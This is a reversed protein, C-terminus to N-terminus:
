RPAAYHRLLNARGQAVTQRANPHRAYVYQLYNVAQESTVTSIQTPDNRCSMVTTVRDIHIFDFRESLQMWMELDSVFGAAEDFWGVRDWAARSFVVSPGGIINAIQLTTKGAPEGVMLAYGSIAYSGDAQPEAYERLEIAHAVQAGSRELAPVVRALHDPCYVDDDALCAIYAGSSAEIGDNLATAVGGRVTREVIKARRFGATLASDIPPGADNVIVLELNDYTQAAISAIATSLSARRNLTPVVVSVLPGDHVSQPGANALLRAFTALPDGDPRRAVPARGGLANAVAMFISRHNWPEYVSIGDLWDAAGSTAAVALPVGWRALARASGPDGVSADVIVAAHALADAADGVGVFRTGSRMPAPAGGACIICARQEFEELAFAIIGCAEAPYDPAWVVITRENSRADCPDPVAPHEPAIEVGHLFRRALLACLAEREVSSRTVVIDATLAFEMATRLYRPDYAEVDSQARGGINLQRAAVADLARVREDLDGIQALVLPAAVFMACRARPDDFVLSAAFPEGLKRRRAAEAFAVPVCAIDSSVIPLTTPLRHAWAAAPTGYARNAPAASWQTM